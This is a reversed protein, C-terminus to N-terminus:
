FYVGFGASVETMGLLGNVQYLGFSPKGSEYQRVDVRAAFLNTLRVKVGAGYNFGFKTSGGGYGASSGPPVYNNFQVGGTAFPRIRSGEKTAYYLFNYGGQHIAMGFETGAPIGNVADGASYRFQTRNYAYQIEHGIRGSSNFGFRFGFRFGNTLQIDNSSGGLTSTTGIGNNSLISEGADFWVEGSQAWASGAALLFFVALLNRM